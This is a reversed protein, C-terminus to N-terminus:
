PRDVLLCADDVLRSLMKQESADTAVDTLIRLLEHRSMLGDGDQDVISILMYGDERM